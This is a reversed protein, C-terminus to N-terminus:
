SSWEFSVSRSDNGGNESGKGKSYIRSQSIGFEYVLYYKINYARKISLVLNGDASGKEDAYGTLRLRIGPCDQMQQAIGALITRDEESLETENRPFSVSEISPLGCPFEETVEMPLATIEPLESVPMEIESAEAMELPDPVVAIIKEEAPEQPEPDDAPEPESVEALPAAIEKEVPEVAILPTDAGVLVEESTTDAVPCGNNQIFGAEYPCDDEMDPLGDGDSDAPKTSAILEETTIEEAEDKFVPPNKSKFSYAYLIGIGLTQPASNWSIKRQIELSLRSRDGTRIGIGAGLPSYADANGAHYSGGAGGFLYPAVRANERFLIGNNLKVIFTYDFSLYYSQSPETSLPDQVGPSIGAKTRFDFGPRLYRTVALGAGPFYPTSGTFIQEGIPRFQDGSVGAALAWRNDSTQSFLTVPLLILLLSLRLYTALNRVM